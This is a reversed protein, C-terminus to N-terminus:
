DKEKITHKGTTGIGTTMATEKKKNQMSTQPPARDNALFGRRKKVGKPDLKGNNPERRAGMKPRRPVITFNMNKPRPFVESTAEGRV